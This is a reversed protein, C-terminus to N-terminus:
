SVASSDHLHSPIVSAQNRPTSKHQLICNETRAHLQSKALHLVFPQLSQSIASHLLQIFPSVMVTLRSLTWSYSFSVCLPGYFDVVSCKNFEFLQLRERRTSQTQVSLFVRFLDVGRDNHLLIQAVSGFILRRLLSIENSVKQM